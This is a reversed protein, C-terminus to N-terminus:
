NGGKVKYYGRANGDRLEVRFGKIGALDLLIIGKV